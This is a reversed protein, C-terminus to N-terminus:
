KENHALTPIRFFSLVPVYIQLGCKEKEKSKTFTSGVEMDGSSIGLSLSSLAFSLPDKAKCPSCCSHTSEDNLRKRHIDTTSTSSIRLYLLLFKLVVICSFQSGLLPILKHAYMYM